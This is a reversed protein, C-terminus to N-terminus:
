AGEPNERSADEGAQPSPPPTTSEVLPSPFDGYVFPWLAFLSRVNMGSDSDSNIARYITVRPLGTMLQLDKANIGEAKMRAVLHKRFTAINM